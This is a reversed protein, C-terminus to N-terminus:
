FWLGVRVLAQRRNQNNFGEEVRIPGLPTPLDFGARVGFLLTGDLAGPGRRFDGVGTVGAMPELRAHLQRWLPWRLLLAGFLERDGRQELMRLGAFGDLGGLTFTQHIPLGRGWGARVRPRVELRGVARTQAVDIAMRQWARLGIAEVQVDPTATGAALHRVAFRAGVTGKTTVGRQQWLRYDAGLEWSWGPEYLPRLGVIAALEEVDVHPRETAGDWLRVDETALNLSGGVPLYRAGVRAQRRAALTLETRWTGAAFLASGELDRDLIAHDVMAVWIRGSMLHDFAVGIGFSRRPAEELRVAFDARSSDGTPTLWAGRYREDSALATLGAGIADVDLPTRTALRLTRLAADRGRVTSPSARVTGITAPVRATVRRTTLPRVCTAGAFAAEAARRGVRVLSDVMEPRLDLMGYGTTPQEIDVDGMRPHVSDQVWLFEFLQTTVTLPDDFAAPDPKPSLVRSVIVREAGLSRAVGVPINSSLGGDVLSRGDIVVPRLLLPISMSARTALALDGHDLAVVARSDLDTAVARFPIPLADFDGRALLNPRLLLRSLAANLEAENVAGTQLVWHAPERQYVVAPKLGGLSSSITPEYSRILAGLPVQGLRARVESPTAGSAYLAGIIAGMSTGVVLDPVVGLSDLVELVGLHVFGKTGGGSLVLATRAPACAAMVPPPEPAAAAPTQALAAGPALAHVLVAFLLLPRM